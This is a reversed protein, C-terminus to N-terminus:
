FTAMQWAVSFGDAAERLIFRRGTISTPDLALWHHRGASIWPRVDPLGRPDPQHHLTGRVLISWATGRLDDIEDIELSAPGTARGLVSDDGTRVIVRVSNTDGILRYNVPLAIPHGHDLVCLRGYNTRSLLDLCEWTNLEYNAPTM